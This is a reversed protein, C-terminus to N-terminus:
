DAPSPKRRGALWMALGVLIVAGLTEQRKAEPHRGSRWALWIAVPGLLLGHGADPDRWWDSLLTTLPQQFLMLFVIATVLPAALLDWRVGRRWIELARNSVAEM